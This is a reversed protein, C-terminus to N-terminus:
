IKLLRFVQKKLHPPLHRRILVFLRYLLRHFTDYLTVNKWVRTRVLLKGLWLAKPYMIEIRFLRFRYELEAKGITPLKMNTVPEFYSSAQRPTIMGAEECQEYLTTGKYPHFMSVFLRDPKVQRNLRITDNITAKTEGPLGMMNYAWAKIGANKVLRFATIIQENSMNRKMVRNRIRENGHEIGIKIEVCGARKLCDVIEPDILDARANIHLPMGIRHSYEDCFQRAWQKNIIFTDDHFNVSEVGRYTSLVSLVEDLVNNVSRLRVYRGKGRYIDQLKHNICYSCPYPCGRGALFDARHDVDLAAQYDFLVRDPPPLSDLDEILNRVDNRVVTNGQKIWLNRIRTLGQKEDLARALELMAYEGEGVCLFKLGRIAITEEPAVTAHPGGAVIPLHFTDYVYNITQEALDCQDSTYSFAILTPQFDHIAHRVLNKDLCHCTILRTNIGHQKLISSISAIGFQFDVFIFDVSPIPFVFLVRM